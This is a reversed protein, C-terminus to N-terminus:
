MNMHRPPLNRTRGLGAPCRNTQLCPVRTQLRLASCAYGETRSKVASMMFGRKDQRPCRSRSFPTAGKVTTPAPTQQAGTADGGSPLTRRSFYFLASAM